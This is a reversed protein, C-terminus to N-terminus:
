RTSSTLIGWTWACAVPKRARCQVPPNNSPPREGMDRFSWRFATDSPPAGQLPALGPSSRGRDGRGLGVPESTRDGWGPHNVAKVANGPPRGRFAHRGGAVMQCGKPNLWESHALKFSINPITNSEM